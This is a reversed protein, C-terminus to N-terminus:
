FHILVDLELVDIILLLFKYNEAWCMKQRLQLSRPISSMNIASSGVVKVLLGFVGTQQILTSISEGSDKIKSNLFEFEM